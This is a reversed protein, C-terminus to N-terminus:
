TPTKRPLSIVLNEQKYGERRMEANEVALEELRRVIHKSMSM